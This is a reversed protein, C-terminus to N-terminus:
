SAAKLWRYAALAGLFAQMTEAPDDEVVYPKVPGPKDKPLQVIVGVTPCGELYSAIAERYAINQLRMEPYVAKASKWDCVAVAEPDVGLLADFRAVVDVTGAYGHGAHYVRNEAIIPRYGVRDAWAKWHSFMTRADLDAAPEISPQGLMLRSHHEILAHAQTGADAAKDRKKRWAQSVPKLAAALTGRQESRLWAEAAEIDAEQQMKSAWMLLAPKDLVKLITTVSPMVQGRICYSHAERDFEVEADMAMLAQAIDAADM